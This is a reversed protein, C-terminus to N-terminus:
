ESIRGLKSQLEVVARYSSVNGNKQFLEAAKQYDLAAGSQDRLAYRAVGRYTYAQANNPDLRIATSTDAIAAKYSGFIALAMGRLAHADAYNPNLEIAKTADAIAAMYDGQKAKELGQQYLAEAATQNEPSVEPLTPTPASPTPAPQIIIQGSPTQESAAPTNAPAIAPCSMMGAVVAAVCSVGRLWHPSATQRTKMPQSGKQIVPKNIMIPTNRDLSIAKIIHGKYL